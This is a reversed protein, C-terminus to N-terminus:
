ADTSSTFALPPTSLPVLSSNSRKSLLLLGASATRIRFCIMSEPTCKMEIPEPECM